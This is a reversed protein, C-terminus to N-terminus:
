FVHKVRNHGQGKVLNNWFRILENSPQPSYDHLTLHFDMLRNLLYRALSSFRSVPRFSPRVSSRVSPCGSFM